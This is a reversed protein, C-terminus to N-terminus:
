STIHSLLSSPDVGEKTLVDSVQSCTPVWKLVFQKRLIAERIIGLEIRLRRDKVTTTSHAAQYLSYNDTVGEILINQRSEFLIESLLASILYATDVAEAMALTEAALTSTVVRRM